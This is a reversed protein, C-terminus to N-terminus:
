EVWYDYVVPAGALDYKLKAQVDLHHANISYSMLEEQSKFSMQLILNYDRKARKDDTLAKACVILRQTEKIEALSNLLNIIEEQRKESVENKSSLIVTHVIDGKAYGISNIQDYHYSCGTFLALILFTPLVKM